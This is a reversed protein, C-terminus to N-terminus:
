GRAPSNAPSELEIRVNSYEFYNGYGEGNPLDGVRRVMDAKVVFNKETAKGRGNPDTSWTVQPGVVLTATKVEGLPLDYDSPAWDFEIVEACAPQVHGIGCRGLQYFKLVRGEEHAFMEKGGASTAQVYLKVVFPTIGHGAMVGKCEIKNVDLTEDICKLDNFRVTPVSSGVTSTVQADVATPGSPRPSQSGAALKMPNAHEVADVPAQNNTSWRQLPKKTGKDNETPASTDFDATTSTNRTSGIM